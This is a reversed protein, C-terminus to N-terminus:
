LLATCLREPSGIKITECAKKLHQRTQYLAARRLQEALHSNDDGDHNGIACGLSLWGRVNYEQNEATQIMLTPLKCSVAEAVTQGAAAVLIDLADFLNKMEQATLRGTAKIDSPLGVVPEAGIAYVTTDSPVTRRVISLVENALGGHDTGGLLVGVSDIDERVIRDTPQWFPKRLVQYDTGLLLALGPREPYGVLHAGPGGNIVIGHEPINSGYDDFWVPADDREALLRRVEPVIEYADVIVGDADTIARQAEAPTDTWPAITWATEPARAALWERGSRCDVVLTTDVSRENLATALADCRYLHGLGIHPDAVTLFIARM